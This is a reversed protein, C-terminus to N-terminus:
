PTSSVTGKDLLTTTGVSPQSRNQATAPLRNREGLDQVAMVSNTFTMSEFVVAVIGLGFVVWLRTMKCYYPAYRSPSEAEVEGRRIFLHM